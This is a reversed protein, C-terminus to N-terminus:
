KIKFTHKAIHIYTYMHIQIHACVQSHYFVVKSMSLMVVYNNFCSQRQIVSAACHGLSGLSDAQGLMQCSKTHKRPIFSMDWHKHLLCKLQAVEYATQLKARYHKRKTDLVKVEM